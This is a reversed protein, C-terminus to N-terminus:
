AKELIKVIGKNANVEVIDGSRIIETAAQTGVICPIKFERSIIAAHCTAGGEDTVIASAKDMALIFDPGTMPSILIDGEKVNELDQIKFLVRAPGKAIGVQAVQGKIEPNINEDSFEELFIKNNNFFNKVREKSHIVDSNFLAWSERRKELINKSPLEDSVAEEITVYDALDNQPEISFKINILDFIKMGIMYHLKDNWFRGEKAIRSIEKIKEDETNKESGALFIITMLPVIEHANLDFLKQLDDVNANEVFNINETCARKYDECIKQIMSPNNKLYSLMIERRKKYLDKEYYISSGKEPHNFFLPSFRIDDGLLKNVGNEQGISLYQAAYVPMHRNHFKKFIRTNNNEAEEKM